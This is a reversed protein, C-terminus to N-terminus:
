ALRDPEPRLKFLAPLAENGQETVRVTCSRVVQKIRASEDALMQKQADLVVSQIAHENLCTSCTGREFGDCEKCRKRLEEITRRSQEINM